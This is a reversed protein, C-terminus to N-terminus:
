SQDNKIGRKILINIAYVDQLVLVMKQFNIM